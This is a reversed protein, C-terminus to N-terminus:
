HLLGGGISIASDTAFHSKGHNRQSPYILEVVTTLLHRKHPQLFFGCFFGGLFGGGFIHTMKIDIM